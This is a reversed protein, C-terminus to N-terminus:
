TSKITESSYPVELDIVVGRGPQGGITLQGGLLATRERMNRLGQGRGNGASNTLGVGDDAIRLWLSAERWQLHVSVRKAQAHRSINAFAERVIGIVHQQREANLLHPDDGEVELDVSLLTNIRLDRLLRTLSKGLDEEGGEPKARLDFIYRRIEQITNNLSKMVQGLKQKAQDPADDILYVTDELMLGVAYISQITGDHLERGIRERDAMLLKASEAEKLMQATEIQFIETGRILSYALIMGFISLFVQIPVGITRDLLSYNLVSAPLFPADPVILGNLLGLAALSLSAIRLFHEIRPLHLPEIEQRVHQNLGFAALLASPGALVYRGVVEWDTLLVDDPALRVLWAAVLTGEWGALLGIPLWRCWISEPAVLELGFRMLAAFSLALLSVQVFQLAMIVKAPLYTAQIPIFLRGWQALGNAIGFAALYPLSHVVALRSYRRSQLAIVLGVVFFVQGYLFFFVIENIKFFGRLWEVM